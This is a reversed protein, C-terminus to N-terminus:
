GRYWGKAAETDDSQKVDTTQETTFGKAPKIIVTTTVDVKQKTAQVIPTVMGGPTWAGNTQEGGGGNAQRIKEAIEAPTPQGPLQRAGSGSGLTAGLFGSGHRAAIEEPSLRRGWHGAGPMGDKGTPGMIWAHTDAYDQDQEESSRIHFMSNLGSQVGAANGIGPAWDGPGATQPGARVGQHSADFAKMRDYAARADAMEKEHQSQPGLPFAGPGGGGPFDGAGASHSAYYEARAQPPMAKFERNAGQIDGEQALAQAYPIEPTGNGYDFMVPKGEAIRKKEAAEAIQGMRVSGYDRVLDSDHQMKRIQLYVSLLAAIESLPGVNVRVEGGGVSVEPDGAGRPPNVRANTEGGYEDPVAEGRQRYYDRVQQKRAAVREARTGSRTAEQRAAQEEKYERNSKPREYNSQERNAQERQSSEYQARRADAEQARQRAQEQYRERAAQDQRAREEQAAREREAEYAAQRENAGAERATRRGNVWDRAARAVRGPASKVGEWGGVKEWGKYALNRVLNVAADFPWAMAKKVAVFAKPLWGSAAAKLGVVLAVAWTWMHTAIYGEVDDLEKRFWRRIRDMVTLHYKADSSAPPSANGGGAPAASSTASPTSSPSPTEPGNGADGNGGGGGGTGSADGGKAGPGPDFGVGIPHGTYQKHGVQQRQYERQSDRIQGMIAVGDRVAGAVQDGSGQVQDKVGAAADATGADTAADPNEEDSAGPMAPAATDGPHAAVKQAEADYTGPRAKGEQYAKVAPDAWPAMGRVYQATSTDNQHAEAKDAQQGIWALVRDPYSPEGNAGPQMYKEQLQQVQQEGAEIKQATGPSVKGFAEGVRAIAALLLGLGRAIDIMIGAAVAFAATFAQALRLAIPLVGQFWVRIKDLIGMVGKGDSLKEYWQGFANAGLVGLQIMGLGIGPLRESLWRIPEQVWSLSQVLKGAWADFAGSDKMEKFKERLTSFGALLPDLLGQRQLGLAFRTWADKMDEMMAGWTYNLKEAAGGVRAEVMRIIADLNKARDEATTYKLREGGAGPVAGYQIAMSPRFGMQILSRFNGTAGMMVASVTDQVPKNFAAALDEGAAMVKQYAGKPFQDIGLAMARMMAESLQTWEFPKGLAEDIAWQVAKGTSPGFFIRMRGEQNQIQAVSAVFAEGFKVAQTTIRELAKEVWSIAQMFPRTVMSLSWFAAMFMVYWRFMRNTVQTFRQQFQGWEQAPRAEEDAAIKAAQKDRRANERLAETHLRNMEQQRKRFWYNQSAWTAQQQAQQARASREAEQQTERDRRQNERVAEAQQQNMYRRKQEAWYNRTDQVAKAARNEAAVEAKAQQDRKAYAGAVGGITARADAARAQELRIRAALIKRVSADEVDASEAMLRKLNAQASALRQQAASLREALRTNNQFSQAQRSFETRMGEAHNRYTQTAQSLRVLEATQAATMKKAQAAEGGTGSGKAGAGPAGGKSVNKQLDRVATQVSAQDVEAGIVVGLRVMADFDM